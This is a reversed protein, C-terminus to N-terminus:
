TEGKIADIIKKAEDFRTYHGDCGLVGVIVTRGGIEAAAVLCYGAVDTYGTKLGIVEPLYYKSEKQIFLDSNKWVVTSGNDFTVEASELATCETIAECSLAMKSITIIDRMTTYHEKSHYGDPNAFHSGSLGCTAAYENMREVFISVAKEAPLDEAGAIRRGCAAALVYAADNGSPLLMGKIVTMVDVRVGKPIKARASDRAILDIEDGVTVVDDPDVYCLAVLVTWLKTISAPYITEDLNGASLTLSDTAMDFVFAHEADVSLDDPLAIAPLGETEPLTSTSPLGTTPSNTTPTQSTTPTSSLPRKVTTTQSLDRLKGHSIAGAAGILLALVLVDAVLLVWLKYKKYLEKYLETKM